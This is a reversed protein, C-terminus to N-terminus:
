AHVVRRLEATERELAGCFRELEERATAHGFSVRISSFATDEPVGMATIVRTRRRKGTSCASGTSISFGRDNMVRVLVEGPIPPFAASVIYPSFSDPLARRAEPLLVCGPIAALREVLFRELERARSLREPVSGTARELALSMGLVAPLNETGARMGSEQGGGSILVEFRRNVYLIGAGRPGNLKHASISVTDAGTSSLEIPIKGVAQVGDCHFRIKRGGHRTRSALMAGIEQVPQIAGTENNVIMCSVLVTDDTLAQEIRRVSVRGDYEPPVFSVEYGLSRLTVATEYASAHEIETIVIRGRGRSKLVSLLAIANSESGGSTFVISDPKVGLAGACRERTETLLGAAQRGEAHLSSPNGFHSSAADSMANLIDPDPATTAAWDLYVNPM